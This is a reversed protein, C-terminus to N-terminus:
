KKYPKKPKIKEITEPTPEGDWVAVLYNLELTDGSKIVVPKRHLNHSIGLYAFSKGANGMTFALTPVPNDLYGFVAVTVPKGDLKATYAMWKCETLREDGRISEFKNTSESDSFFRGGKDMTQDFRLGLGAYYHNSKDLEVDKDAAILKTQWNLFVVGDGRLVSIRRQERLLLKANGDQWELESQLEETANDSKPKISITIQKGCKTSNEAWFDCGNVNVAFMLAHHHLHDYPADRLINYGSPTRLKSIYPKFPVNKYCYDAVISEGSKLLVTTSKQDSLQKVTGDKAIQYLNDRSVAFLEHGNGDANTRTILNSCAFANKFPVDKWSNSERDYVIPKGAKNLAYLTDTGNGNKGNKGAVACIIKQKLDEVSQNQVLFVSGSKDIFSIEDNPSTTFNGVLLAVANKGDVLISYTQWQPNFVYINADTIVAFDDAKNRSNLKGATIQSFSGPLPIWAKNMIEKTWRFAQGSYTSAVVSSYSENPLFRGTTITEVNHGFPGIFKKTKFSYVYLARRAIDLFVLQDGGEELIDAAAITSIRIDPIPKVVASQGDYVHVIGDGDLWAVGFTGSTITNNTGEFANAFSVGALVVFLVFFYSYKTRM